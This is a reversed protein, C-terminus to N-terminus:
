NGHVAEAVASKGLGRDELLSELEAPDAPTQAYLKGLWRGIMGSLEPWSKGASRQFTDAYIRANNSDVLRKMATKLAENKFDRYNWNPEGGKWM